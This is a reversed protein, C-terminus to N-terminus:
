SIYSILIKTTVTLHLLQFAIHIVSGGICQVQEAMPVWAM